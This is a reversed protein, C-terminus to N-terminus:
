SNATTAYVSVADAASYGSGIGSPHVCIGKISFWGSTGYNYSITHSHYSWGNANLSQNMTFMSYLDNAGSGNPQLVSYSAATDSLVSSKLYVGVSMVIPKYKVINSFANYRMWHYYDNSNSAMTRRLDGNYYDSDSIYATYGVRINYCNSTDSTDNDVVYSTTAAFATIASNCLMLMAILLTSLRKNM